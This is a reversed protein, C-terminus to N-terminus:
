FRATLSLSVNRGPQTYSDVIALNSPTAALPRVDSWWSYETDLLNFIGARLTLHDGLKVFATADLITFADPRICDVTASCGSVAGAAARVSGVSKGATHTMILQGGFFGKPDRYGLGMVLKAPDISLLGAESSQGPNVTGKAYSLALNAYLGNRTHAEFQAEAGSIRVKGLNINQYQTLGDSAPGVDELSIFHNYRGTFGTISLSVNASTLRLGGEFTESTEPKLGANPITRYRGPNEFFQNVQSPAPAKFGRAYNAFFRVHDSLKVVAGIKPSVHSGKKDIATLSPLSADTEADLSYHDFRLVPFLTLAGDAISIEDALFGGLLAYDTVPFARTPFSEGAPAWVGDRIGEQRTTSWDGGWIVQHKLPGTDFSSQFDASVGITRNDFINVRERNTALVSLEEVGSQRSRSKQWYATLHLADIPGLAKQTWDLSVRDRRTTDHTNTSLITNAVRGSAPRAITTGPRVVITTMNAPITINVTGGNATFVESDVRDDVHDVTLRVLTNTHPSWVIKGMAANSATDQPNAVTRTSDETERTGRTELEHGDRRTYAALFSWDGSRGALMASESYQEDASDYSARVSGGITRDKGLVDSPDATVFSVAGALGDSGYLASAPGRLIEVSKLLGLDVYDGRGASQGGFSYADPVRIGDIQILVRNGDLGRINFGTNGARADNGSGTNSFRSPARKVSVGPEFRVLDKIDEVMNDDIQEATIVTVTAPVDIIPKESRTATVTIQNAREVWWLGDADQAQATNAALAFAIALSACAPRAVLSVADRGQKWRSCGGRVGRGSFASLGGIYSM